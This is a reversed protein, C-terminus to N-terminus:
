GVSIVEIEEFGEDKSPEELKRVATYIALKPVRNERKANRELALETSIRFVIAKITYDKEKAADIFKNRVEITTNTNDIVINEDSELLETFYKWEKKRTKLTDLNIRKHTLSYNNEYYTSKGSAPIGVFIILEPM